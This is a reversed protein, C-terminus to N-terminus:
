YRRLVLPNATGRSEVARPGESGLNAASRASLDTASEAVTAPESVQSHEAATSAVMRVHGGDGRHVLDHVLLRVARCLRRGHHDDTGPVM